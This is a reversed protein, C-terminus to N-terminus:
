PQGLHDTARRHLNVPLPGSQRSRSVPALSWSKESSRPPASGDPLARARLYGQETFTVLTGIGDGRTELDGAVVLSRIGRYLDSHRMRSKLWEDELVHLMVRGGRGVRLDHFIQLVASEVATEELQM